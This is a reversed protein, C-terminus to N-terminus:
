YRLTYVVDVVTDVEVPKGNLSTVRYEWQRVADVASQQLLEPGSIVELEQVKGTKGVVIHLRVTGDIGEKRAKEPYEPQVKRVISRAMNQGGIRVRTIEKKEKAPADQALATLGSTLGGMLLAGFIAVVRFVTAKSKM